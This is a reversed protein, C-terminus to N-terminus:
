LAPVAQALRWQGWPLPRRSACHACAIAMESRYTAGCTGCTRDALAAAPDTGASAPRVFTLDYRGGTALWSVDNGRQAVTRAGVSRAISTMASAFNPAAAAAAFDTAGPQVLAQLQSFSIRVSVQHDAGLRVAVLEPVSPQYDLPINWRRKGSGHGADLASQDNERRRDSATIEVIRGFPQKWFVDTVVRRIAADDGTSTAAFVLLIATQAAELLLQEDFNPDVRCLADLGAPPTGARPRVPIATLARRQSRARVTIVVALYGILVVFLLVWSALVVAEAIGFASVAVRASGSTVTALSPGALGWTVVAGAAM